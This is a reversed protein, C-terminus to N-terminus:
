WYTVGFYRAAYVIGMLIVAVGFAKTLWSGIAMYKEGVRSGVARSFTSIPIVPVGHGAGFAFLMLGGTLPTVDQSILWILVPFVLSVACPAWGLAFFAGLTFAGIFASYRFLGISFEVSNELFSKGESNPGRIHVRSTLPELIENLPKFSTIGLAIMMLGAALDFSRAERVFSGLDSLFLGIIFFVVAMGLTFAFGIMMGERSTSISKDLYEEKRRTTMIYSFMALLLAVSCPSLSTIIGLAFMGAYSVSQQSVSGEFGSWEGSEISKIKAYLVDASQVGDIDGKALQYVHYLGAARGEKDILVLTPNSFGGAITSYDVYKGSLPYPEFDEVWPWTVNVAWWRESLTMGDKSYPNKRMNLTVIEVDPHKQKLLDLEKLQGSLAHECETCVPNEINTIHLILPKGRYDSLSIEKGELDTSKLDPLPTANKSSIMFSNYFLVAGLIILISVAGIVLPVNGKSSM